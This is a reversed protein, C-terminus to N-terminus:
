IQKRLELHLNWLKQMQLKARMTYEQNGKKTKVKHSFPLKFEHFNFLLEFIFFKSVYLFILVDFLEFMEYQYTVQMLLILTDLNLLWLMEMLM